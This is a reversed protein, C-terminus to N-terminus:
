FQRGSKTFSIRLICILFMVLFAHNKTFGIHFDEQQQGIEIDYELYNTDTTEKWKMKLTCTEQCGVPHKYIGHGEIRETEIDSSEYANSQTDTERTEQSSGYNDFEISEVEQIESEEYFDSGLQEKSAGDSTEYSNDVIYETKEETEIYSDSQEPKERSKNSREHEESESEINTNAGEDTNGEITLEYSGEIINNDEEQKTNKQTEEGEYSGQYIDTQQKHEESEIFANEGEDTNREETLENSDEIINIEEEETHKQTGEGEFSGEYIDTQQEESEIYDNAGEDTNREETLENSDEIINIEEEETHKQTGEGEFSGEYIDTQQEESEIFDKEGEDTNWDEEKNGEKIEGFINEKHDYSSDSVSGSSIEVDERNGSEALNEEEYQNSEGELTFSQEETDENGEISEQYNGRSKGTITRERKTSEMNTLGGITNMVQETSIQITFISKLLRLDIDQKDNTNIQRSFSFMVENKNTSLFKKNILDDVEDM